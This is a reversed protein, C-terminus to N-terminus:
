LLLSLTLSLPLSPSLFLYFLLCLICLVSLWTKILLPAAAHQHQFIRFTGAARGSISLSVPLSRGESAFVQLMLLQPAVGGRRFSPPFSAARSMWDAGEPLSRLRQFLRISESRPSFAEGLYSDAVLRAAAASRRAGLQKFCRESLVLRASTISYVRLFPLAGM